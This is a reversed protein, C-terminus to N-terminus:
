GRAAEMVKDLTATEDAVEVRWADIVIDQSASLFAVAVLVPNEIVRVQENTVHQDRLASALGPSVELDVPLGDAFSALAQRVLATQLDRLSAGVKLSVLIGPDRELLEQVDVRAPVPLGTAANTIKRLLPQRPTIAPM